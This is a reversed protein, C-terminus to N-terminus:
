QARIARMTTAYQKAHISALQPGCRSCFIQSKHSKPLAIACAHCKGVPAPRYPEPPRRQPNMCCRWCWKEGPHLVGGCRCTDSAAQAVPEPQDKRKRRAKPSARHARVLPGDYNGSRYFRVGLGHYIDTVVKRSLGMEAAVRSPSEGAKAAAEIRQMQTPTPKPAAPRRHKMEREMTRWVERVDREDMLCRAAVQRADLGTGYLKRAAEIRAADIHM